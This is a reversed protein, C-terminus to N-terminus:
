GAGSEFPECFSGIVIRYRILSRRAIAEPRSVPVDNPFSSNTLRKLTRWYALAPIKGERNALLFQDLCTFSFATRPDKYSAPFLGMDFLQEDHSPCGECECFHTAIHHVGFADIYLIYPNGDEDAQGRRPTFMKFFDPQEAEDAEEWDDEDEDDEGIDILVAIEDPACIRLDPHCVSRTLKLGRGPPKRGNTPRVTTQLDSHVSFVAAPFRVDRVPSIETLQPARGKAM